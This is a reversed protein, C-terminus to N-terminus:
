TGIAEAIEKFLESLEICEEKTLNHYFYEDCCEILYFNGDQEYGICMIRDDSLTRLLEEHKKLVQNNDLLAKFDPEYMSDVEYFKNKNTGRVVKVTKIVFLSLMKVCKKRALKM